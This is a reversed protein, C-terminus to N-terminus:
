SENEHLRYWVRFIQKAYQMDIGIGNDAVSFQWFMESNSTESRTERCGIWVTPPEGSEREHFKIANIILNRFVQLIQRRDCSIQPLFSVIQVSAGASCITEKLEEIAERVIEESECSAFSKKQSDVRALDLQDDIM